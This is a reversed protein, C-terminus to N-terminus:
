KAIKMESPFVGTNFSLNCIYKFPQIISMFTSKVVYMNLDNVDCSHKHNCTSLVKVLETETVENLYMSNLKSPGMTDYIGVIKNPPTIKKALDPGVNIFFNIFGNAICKNGKVTKNQDQFTDPFSSVGTKGKIVRNLTKWIGKIDNKCKILLNYYRNQEYRLISTLKNKYKYYVHISNSKYKLFQKYLKNKKNCANQLPWPPLTTVSEGGVESAPTRDGYYGRYSRYLTSLSTFGWIFLYM